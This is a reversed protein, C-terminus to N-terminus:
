PRAAALRDVVAAVQELVPRAGAPVADARVVLAGHGPDFRVAVESGAAMAEEAVPFWLTIRTSGAVVVVSGVLSDPVYREDANPPLGMLAEVDVRGALARLEEARVEASFEERVGNLEDLHSVQAAGRGPISAEFQLRQGPAGGAIRVDVAFESSLSSVAEKMREVDPRRFSDIVVRM